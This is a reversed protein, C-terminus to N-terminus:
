FEEMMKIRNIKARCCAQKYELQMKFQKAEHLQAPYFRGQAANELAYLQRIYDQWLRTEDQLEQLCASLEM